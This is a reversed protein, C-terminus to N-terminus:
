ISFPGCSTRANRGAEESAPAKRSIHHTEYCWARAPSLDSMKACAVRHAGTVGSTWALSPKTQWM